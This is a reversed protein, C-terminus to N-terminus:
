RGGTYQAIQKPTYPIFDIYFRYDDADGHSETWERYPTSYWIILQSQDVGYSLPHVRYHLASRHKDNNFARNPTKGSFYISFLRRPLSGKGEGERM